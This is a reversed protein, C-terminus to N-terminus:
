PQEGQEIDDRTQTESAKGRRPVTAQAVPQVAPKALFAIQTM